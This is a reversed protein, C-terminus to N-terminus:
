AAPRLFEDGKQWNCPCLEDSQLADLVRLVEAPNRGVSDANVSAFQIVGHPDVLFTARMAVGDNKDLIGCAEALERKLDSLMPIELKNLDAHHHRWSMHVFENDISVGYIVTDRDAFDSAMKGFAVIETPCIFTFDKPWFFVLKWKGADTDSGIETFGTKLDLGAPGGKVAKLHFAPFKDGVTLM